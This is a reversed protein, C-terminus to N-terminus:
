DMYVFDSDTLEIEKPKAKSKLNRSINKNWIFLVTYANNYAQRVSSALKMDEYDDPIINKGNSLLAYSNGVSFVKCDPYKTLVQAKVAAFDQLNIKVKKM